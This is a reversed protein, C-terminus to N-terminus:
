SLDSQVMKDRYFCSLKTVPSEQITRNALISVFHQSKVQIKPTILQFSLVSCKVLALTINSGYFQRLLLIRCQYGLIFHLFLYLSFYINAKSSSARRAILLLTRQVYQLIKWEVQFFAGHVARSSIVWYCCLCTEWGFWITCIIGPQM